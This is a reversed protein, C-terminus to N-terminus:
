YLDINLMIIVVFWEFVFGELIKSLVLILLIFRFDINIFMLWLVKNILIVNVCKWLFLVYGENILLNFFLCIFSYIVLVFNKFVWNLIDDLGNFKREKIFLLVKEVFEFSIVYEDFFYNIDVLIFDM